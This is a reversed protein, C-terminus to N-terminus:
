DLDDFGNLKRPMVLGCNAWGLGFILPSSQEDGEQKNHERLLYVMPYQLMEVLVFELYFPNVITETPLNFPYRMGVQPNQRMYFGDKNMVILGNHEKWIKNVIPIMWGITESTIQCLPQIQPKGSAPNIGAPQCLEIDPYAMWDPNNTPVLEGGLKVDYCGDPVAPLNNIMVSRRLLVYGDTINAVGNVVRVIKLHEKSEGLHPWLKLANTFTPKGLKIQQVATM